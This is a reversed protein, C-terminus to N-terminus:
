EVTRDAEQVEARGGRLKYWDALVSAPILTRSRRRTPGPIRVVGPRGVFLKRVTSTAIHLRAAVEGLTFHEPLPPKRPTAM